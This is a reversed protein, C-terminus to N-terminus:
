PVCNVGLGRMQRIHEDLAVITPINLRQSMVLLSCDTYSWAKDDYRCFAQWTASDDKDSLAVYRHEQRLLRGVAISERISIKVRLWTVTEDFVTSLIVWESDPHTLFYNKVSQHHKESSVFFAILASTDVLVELM